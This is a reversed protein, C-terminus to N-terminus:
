WTFLFRDHTVSDGMAFKAADGLVAHQWLTFDPYQVPLPEWAPASGASRAVYATILDRALPTTSV